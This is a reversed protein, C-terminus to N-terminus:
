LEEDPNYGDHFNGHHYGSTNIFSPKTYTFDDVIKVYLPENDFIHMNFFSAHGKPLRIEKKEKNEDDRLYDFIGSINTQTKRSDLYHIYTLGKGVTEFNVVELHFMKDRQVIYKKLQINLKYPAYKKKDSLVAEKTLYFYFKNEFCYKGANAANSFVARNYENAKKIYFQKLECELVKIELVHINDYFELLPRLNYEEQLM